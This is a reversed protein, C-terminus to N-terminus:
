LALLSLFLMGLLQDDLGLLTSGTSHTCTSHPQTKTIHTNKIKPKPSLTPLFEAFYVSDNMNLDNEDGTNMM